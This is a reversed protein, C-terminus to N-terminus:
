KKMDRVDLKLDDIRGSLDSLPGDRLDHREKKLTEPLADKFSRFEGELEKHDSEIRGMRQQDLAEQTVLGGVKGGIGNVDSRLGRLFLYTGVGMVAFFFGVFGLAATPSGIALKLLEDL